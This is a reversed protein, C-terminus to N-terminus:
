KRYKGTFRALTTILVKQAPYVNSIQSNEANSLKRMSYAQKENLGIKECILKPFESSWNIHGPIIVLGWRFLFLHFGLVNM